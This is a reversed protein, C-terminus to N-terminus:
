WGPEDALRAFVYGQKRTFRIEFPSGEGDLGLKKRLSSIHKIVTNAAGVAPGSWVAEYIHEASFEKGISSALFALLQLEKQTLSVPSGSMTVLGSQLNISLPPVEIRGAGQLGARRLQSVVRASLVNLDFPKTIYDDGGGTLGHVINENKDMCTLFIIPASTQPRIEECFDYGSGDPMLVDLLILDPPKKRLLDRAGALTAACIVEYGQWSLHKRNNEMVNAEDEVLLIRASRM